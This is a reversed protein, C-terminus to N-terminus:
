VTELSVNAIRGEPLLDKYVPAESSQPSKESHSTGSVAESEPLCERDAVRGYPYEKYDLWVEMQWAWDKNEAEPKQYTLVARKVKRAGYLLPSQM